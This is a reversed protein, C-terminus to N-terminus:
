PKAKGLRPTKIAARIIGEVYVKMSMGAVSAQAKLEKHLTSDIRPLRADNM